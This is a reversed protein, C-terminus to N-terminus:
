LSYERILVQIIITIIGKDQLEEFLLLSIGKGRPRLDVQISGRLDQTKIVSM